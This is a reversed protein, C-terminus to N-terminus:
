VETSIAKNNDHMILGFLTKGLIYGKIIIAMIVSPLECRHYQDFLSGPSLQQDIIMILCSM